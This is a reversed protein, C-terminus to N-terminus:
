ENKTRMESVLERSIMDRSKPSPRIILRIGRDYTVYNWFWNTFVITKNRFGVLYLLHVLMWTFWGVLGSLRINGPLDAVAKNRGITAMVGKNIYTFPKLVNGRPIRKLNGALHKGQQIAVPALGPLGEKYNDTQMFASDGIAFVRELTSKGDESCVQNYQNVYLGKKSIFEPPFGEPLNPKVGAAWILTNSTIKEGNSLKVTKGDYSETMCDLIVNVGSRELYHQAKKGSAESMAPLVQKLGEVLYIQMRDIDLDPYDKPLVHKKLEALAGCVEVGTPGAGVVVFNLNERSNDEKKKLIELREFQQLITHRLDLAHTVQKVPYANRAIGDNNFYNMKSGTAIVLYDYHLAGAATHIEQKGPDVKDVRLMRFYWEKHKRIIKRLPGAVSDPELGATAVQYLLPQFTHYNYRDFLVVQFDSSRLKKLIHLGGFGGGVIVIRPKGIDPINLTYTKNKKAM